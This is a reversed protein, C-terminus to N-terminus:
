NERRHGMRLVSRFQLVACATEPKLKVDSNFDLTLSLQSRISPFAAEIALHHLSAPLINLQHNLDAPPAALVAIALGEPLKKLVQV